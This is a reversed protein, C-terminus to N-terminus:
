GYYSYVEEGCEECEIPPGSEHVGAHRAPGREADPDNACAACLPQDLATLYVLNYGHSHAPLPYGVPGLPVPAWANRSV